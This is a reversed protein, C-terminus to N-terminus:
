KTLNIIKDHASTVTSFDPQMVYLKRSGMSYTSAYSGTGNLSISEIDWKIQKDIQMKFLNTIEDYSMNTEFTNNLSNLIEKYKLLYKLNTMKQIMATIIAQQNEGRHRDGTEYIKRERAFALAMKGDMHNVGQYITLNKNTWPTFTRDSYVDIGDLLDISKTLTSFNLRVYYNINIDLLDEITKMSMDIGYIGAHTLKDKYGISNLTVYYDRPISVLLIKGEKPSIVALMNVDSRSTTSISGYTDIGSIYLIFPKTKIDVSDVNKKKEVKVKYKAIIKTNNLNEYEDKLLTYYSDELVIADTKNNLIGDTLFAVDVKEELFEIDENIQEKLEMYYEDNELSSIKKDELDYIDNYSSTNNVIVDYNKYEYEKSVLNNIFNYTTNIYSTIFILGLSIIFSIINVIIKKKPKTKISILSRLILVVVGFMLITIIAFYKVPLINLKFLMFTLFTFCFALLVSNITSIIKLKM